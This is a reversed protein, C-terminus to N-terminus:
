FMGEFINEEFDGIATLSFYKPNFLYECLHVLDEKKIKDVEVAVEDISVLDRYYFFNKGNWSMKSSSTELGLVLGGKLQDKARQLSDETLLDPLTRFTDLIIQMVEKINEM